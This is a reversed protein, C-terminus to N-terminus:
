AGGEWAFLNTFIEGSELYEIEGPMGVARTSEFYFIFCQPPFAGAHDVTSITATYFVGQENGGDIVSIRAMVPKKDTFADCLEQFTKDCAVETQGGDSRSIVFDALLVGSGGSGSDIGEFDDVIYLVDAQKDEDSLADYEERTVFRIPTKASLIRRTERGESESTQETMQLGPGVSFADQKSEDLAQFRSEHASADANHTGIQGSVDPIPIASVAERISQATERRIATHDAANQEAIALALQRVFETNGILKEILPNLVEEADVPDTNQLRRIAEQYAPEEPLTYTEDAM